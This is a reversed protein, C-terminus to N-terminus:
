KGQEALFNELRGLQELLFFRLQERKEGSLADALSQPLEWLLQQASAGSGGPLIVYRGAPLQIQGCQQTEVAARDSDPLQGTTISFGNESQVCQIDADLRQRDAFVTGLWFASVILLLSVLRSFLGRM